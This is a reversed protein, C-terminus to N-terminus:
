QIIDLRMANEENFPTLNGDPGKLVIVVEHELCIQEEHGQEGKLPVLVIDGVKLVNGEKDKM